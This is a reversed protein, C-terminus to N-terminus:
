QHTHPSIGTTHLNRCGAVTKLTTSEMGHAAVKQRNTLRAGRSPTQANVVGQTLPARDVGGGQFTKTENALERFLAMQNAV